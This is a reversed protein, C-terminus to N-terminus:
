AMGIQKSPLAELVHIDPGALKGDEGLWVLLIGEHRLFDAAWGDQPISSLAVWLGVERGVFPHEARHRFRYDRLQAFAHRVQEVENDPSISKAEVIHPSGGLICALDILVSQFCEGGRAALNCRIAQLVAEHAANARELLVAEVFSARDDGVPRLGFSPSENFPQLRPPGVMRTPAPLAIQSKGVPAVNMSAVRNDLWQRLSWLPVAASGARLSAMVEQPSVLNITSTSTHREAPTSKVPNHAGFWAGLRELESALENVLVTSLNMAKSVDELAPWGDAIDFLLRPQRLLKVMRESTHAPVTRAGEDCILMSILIDCDDRLGELLQLQDHFFM